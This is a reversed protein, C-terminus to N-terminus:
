IATKSVPKIFTQLLFILSVRICLRSHSSLRTLFLSFIALFYCIKKFFDDRREKKREVNQCSQVWRYFLESIMFFLKQILNTNKKIKLICNWSETHLKRLCFSLHPVNACLVELIESTLLNSLVLWSFQPENKKKADQKTEEQEDVKYRDARSRRHMKFCCFMTPAMFVIGAM